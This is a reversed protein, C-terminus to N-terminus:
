GDHFRVEGYYGGFRLGNVFDDKDLDSDVDFVVPYIGSLRKATAYGKVWSESKENM